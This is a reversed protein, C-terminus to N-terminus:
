QIGVILRCSVELLSMVNLTTGTGYLAMLVGSFAFPISFMIIFPYTLSEFQAAMVIFVLIIILVALTGLDSFSDQQDEYSGAVQISIGGPLDMKDIISEGAAVVSGLPAGSIVASITVIRERDKREITPPASREVVTGIDKVRIAKGENTYILINELSEISTRFQPAYRVKIDYEDGDERYYSSLAGNVRNRLYLAATSLNLGHLALKERDFDM